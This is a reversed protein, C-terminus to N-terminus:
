NVRAVLKMYAPLFVPHRSRDKQTDCQSETKRGGGASCDRGSLDAIGAAQNDLSCFAAPRSKPATRAAPAM